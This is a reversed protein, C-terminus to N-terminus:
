GGGTSIVEAHRRWSEPMQKKLGVGKHVRKTRTSDKENKRLTHGIRSMYAELRQIFERRKHIYEEHAACWMEYDRYLEVPNVSALPHFWLNEEAYRPVADMEELFEAKSQRMGKTEKLGEKQWLLCGEVMWRFIGAAEQKLKDPLAADRENEEFYRLFDLKKIRDWIGQDSGDVNPTYNTQLFLKFEPTFTFENQHLFRATVPDGGTLGKILAEDLRRGRDTESALVLRAGRLKAIGPSANEGSSEYKKALLVNANIQAAYDGLIAAVTNFIVGKGNRGRRGHMIFFAHEQISGTLSYGLAKQLFRIEEIRTLGNEDKFIEKLTKEWLPCTANPDYDVPALNTMLREPDHPLLQGTKLDLIGNNVNLLWKDADLEDPVVALHPAALKLMARIGVESKAREAQKRLGDLKTKLQRIEPLIDKKSSNLISEKQDESLSDWIPSIEEQEIRESITMTLKVAESTEDRKWRRGDWILWKGFPECYRMIGGYYHILREANGKDGSDFRPWGYWAKLDCIAKQITRERYDDREWKERMLASGRFLRDIQDPDQTFFALLNCLGQDAASDDGGHYKHVDGYDYLARFKEGNESHRAISLIIEDDMRPSKPAPLEFGKKNTDTKKDSGFFRNYLADVEAQRPEITKPTGDLHNGTVVFFRGSDYMEFNGIRKRKGPVKGKVIVHIGTGSQSYEAYSNLASIIEEAEDTLIGLLGEDYMCVFEGKGPDSDLDIGTFPDDTSFVYGLGNYIGPSRLYADLADQFSAWTGPDDASARRGTIAYPVKTEKEDTPIRKELKWLVWQNRKKLEEPISEINSRELRM